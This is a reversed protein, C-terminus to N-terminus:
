ARLISAVVRVLAGVDVPKSVHRLFGSELAAAEQDAGAHASVSIAPVTTRTRLERVFSHGDKGPLGIDAVLVDPRFRDLITLAEDASSATHTCAGAAAFAGDFLQQTDPDDEVILVRVGVLEQEISSSAALPTQPPDPAPEERQLRTPLTITFEAGRGPGDSHVHAVGGHLEVLHRVLALGLGLGARSSARAGEGQRFREWVFPLFDSAIGRGTDRVVLRVRGDAQEVRAVIRGGDDTYRIANSLLNWAIQRLRGPDGLLRHTPVDAEIAFDLQKAVAAPRVTDAAERVLVQLDVPEVDIQMKGTVVRSLDLIDEVLRVQAKANRDIIEVAKHMTGQDKVLGHQLMWAWGAIATVPTRIEHSVTALFEDKVRNAEEAAARLRTQEELLSAAAEDARRLAIADSALRAYVDTLRLEGDSLTRRFRFHTSLVGYPDGVAACLPTAQTARYGAERAVHLSPAFQPELEVDDIVVRVRRDFAMVTASDVLASRFGRQAAVRLTHTRPDYLQIMGFDASHMAITADLVEELLTQLDVRGIAHMSVEHLRKMAALEASITRQVRAQQAARAARGALEEALSVERPTWSRPTASTVYLVATLRAGEVLPVAICARASWLLYEPHTRADGIVLTGALRGFPEISDENTVAEVCGGHTAALHECLMVAATRLIETPDILERVRDSFALLFAQGAAGTTEAGASGERM